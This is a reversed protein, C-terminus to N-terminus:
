SRGLLNYSAVPASDIITRSPQLGSCHAAAKLTSAHEDDSGLHYTFLPIEPTKAKALRMPNATLPQIGVHLGVSPSVDAQLRWLWAMDFRPSATWAKIQEAGPTPAGASGGGDVSCGALALALAAALVTIRRVFGVLLNDM